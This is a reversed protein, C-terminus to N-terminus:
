FNRRIIRESLMIVYNLNGFGEETSGDSRGLDNKYFLNEDLAQKLPLCDGFYNCVHKKAYKGCKTRRYTQRNLPDPENSLDQSLM